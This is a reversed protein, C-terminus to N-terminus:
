YISNSDAAIGKWSHHQQQQQAASGAAAAGLLRVLRVLRLRRRLLLLRLRRLRRLLRLRADHLISDSVATLTSNGAAACVCAKAGACGTIAVATGIGACPVCGCTPWGKACWGICGCGCMTYTCAGGITAPATNAPPAQAHPPLPVSTDCCTELQWSM